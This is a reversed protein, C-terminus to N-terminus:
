IAHATYYLERVLGLINRNMTENEPSREEGDYINRKLSCILCKLKLRRWWVIVRGRVVGIWEGAYSLQKM